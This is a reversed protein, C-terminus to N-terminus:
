PKGQKTWIRKIIGTMYPRLHTFCYENIETVEINCLDALIEVQIYLGCYNVKNKDQKSIFNSTKASDMLLKKHQLFTPFPTPTKCYLRSNSAQLFVWTLKVWVEPLHLLPSKVYKFFKHETGTFKMSCYEAVKIIISLQVKCIITHRIVTMFHTVGEHLYRLQLGIVGQYEPGFVVGRPMHCNYGPKPLIVTVM